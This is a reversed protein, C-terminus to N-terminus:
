PAATLVSARNQSGILPCLAPATPSDIWILDRVNTYRMDSLEVVSRSGSVLNFPERWTAKQLSNPPLLIPYDDFAAPLKTSLWVSPLIDITWHFWNHPSWTGVFIGRELTRKDIGTDILIM